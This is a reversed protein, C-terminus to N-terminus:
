GDNGSKEAVIGEVRNILYHEIEEGHPFEPHMLIGAYRYYRGEETELTINIAQLGYDPLYRECWKQFKFQRLRQRGDNEDCVYTLVYNNDTFQSKILECITQGTAADAEKTDREPYFSFDVLRIDYAGLFPAYYNTVDSFRCIYNIGETNRFSFANSHELINYPSSM